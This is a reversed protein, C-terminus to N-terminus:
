TEDLYGSRGCIFAVLLLAASAFAVLAFPTALSGIWSDPGFSASIICGAASLVIVLIVAAVPTAGLIRLSRRWIQM